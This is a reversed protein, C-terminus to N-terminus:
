KILVMKKTDMFEKATIQYLYVGSSVEKGLRNLGNWETSYWGPMQNRQHNDYIVRGLLDYVRITVDTTTPLTYEIRTTRNFPNPYNQGLSFEAPVLVEDPNGFRANIQNGTLDSVVLNKFEFGDTSSFILIPHVGEPIFSRTLSYVVVLLEDRSIRKSAVEMPYHSIVHIDDVTGKLIFQYGGIRGNSSVKLKDDDLSFIAETEGNVAMMRANGGLIINVVGIIDLVNIVADSNIDAAEFLFPQPDGQLMYDVISIIDLVNVALDGNADGNPASFPTAAIIKSPDSESFDTGLVTYQYRYTSDPIVEFDTHTSDTILVDNIMSFETWTSDTLKLARYMNYGLADDTNAPPWELYVKGIGPTAMFAVSAAGAAQLVFEFRQDEVPIEFNEDDKAGSVRIRNIGDGTEIGMTYYATWITSDASWSASDNVVHQTYPDAVGFTLFPTFTTDMARNFYLDFRHTGPGLVGLGGPSTYPNHIHNITVGNVYIDNAIAHAASPATSLVNDLGLAPVSSADFYDRISETIYTSDSTGFYNPPLTIVEFSGFVGLDYPHNSLFINEHVYQIQSTYFTIAPSGYSSGTNQFIINKTFDANVKVMSHYPDTYGIYQHNYQFLCRTAPITYWIIPGKNFQFICNEVSSFGSIVARETVNSMGYEILSWKLISNPANSTLTGWYGEGNITFKILSDQTGDCLFFHDVLIDKGPNVSIEVGPLLILSDFVVSEPIIYHKDNTLTTLGNVIGFLEVGNEVVISIAWSQFGGSGEELFLELRIQRLNAVNQDIQLMLPDLQNDLEAYSSIDGMYGTTDTITAATTDEFEAFDISVTVSDANGGYNKVTVWLEITEGADARGDDDCVDCTDVITHSVYSLVPDPDPITLASFFDVHGSTASILKARLLETSELPDYSLLNAVGGAVIPTAMSTGSLSNYNGNPFTSHIGIGPAKLEYNYGEIYGSSRPGDQDYNSFGDPGMADGAQLGIVWSFAAPYLPAGSRLDPCRGPGICLGDNGAAAVEIATSYAVELAQQLTMSLGYSGLSMNIVTAGNEYAYEVGAAVDSSSGYGTSQLVKLPMIRAQWSMGSIGISNDTVAATIGAVHTGHANDDNPDNDDSIWNWGRIDDVYGNGDDDVGPAGDVEVQNTWINDALDPHDWDVGTDIIGIIQSTDGTTSDWMAPANVAPLYWQQTYLPDNPITEMVRFQYDPEAYEINPDVSYIDVLLSIDTDEPFTLKYINHLNPAELYGDPMQVLKPAARKEEQKFLKDVALLGFTSNLSDVSAVTFMPQQRTRAASSGTDAVGRNVPVNDKFKVILVGDEFPPNYPDLQPPDIGGAFLFSLGAIYFIHRKNM